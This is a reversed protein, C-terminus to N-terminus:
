YKTSYNVDLVHECNNIRQQNDNRENDANCSKNAPISEPHYAPFIFVKRDVLDPAPYLVKKKVANKV